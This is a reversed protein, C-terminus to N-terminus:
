AMHFVVKEDNNDKEDEMIDVWFSLRFSNAICVLTSLECSYFNSTDPFISIYTDNKMSEDKIRWKYDYRVNHENIVELLMKSSKKEM